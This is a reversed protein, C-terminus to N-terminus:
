VIVVTLLLHMRDWWSSAKERMHALRVCMFISVELVYRHITGPICVCWTYRYGDYSREDKKEHTEGSKGELEARSLHRSYFVHSATSSCLLSLPTPNRDIHVPLPRKSLRCCAPAVAASHVAALKTAATKAKAKLKLHRQQPQPQQQQQKQLTPEPIFGKRLNNLYVLFELCFSRRRRLFWDCM